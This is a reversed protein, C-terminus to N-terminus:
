RGVRTLRISKARAELNPGGLLTPTQDRNLERLATTAVRDVVFAYTEQLDVWRDGNADADGRLARLLFYTFLGHQFPEYDSSIQNATAATLVAINGFTLVPDAATIVIPRGKTAISRGGLGSFCSDLFVVTNAGLADLKEYLRKLAYMRTQPSDPHGEYPVLYSEGAAPDLAGHGAYYVFVDSKATVRRPLWQEFTEEFDSRAARDNLLIRMNQRPVGVANELYQAVTQADREAFPLRPIGSERYNSIGIIVAVSSAREPISVAAPPSDVDAAPAPAPPSSPPSPQSGPQPQNPPAYNSPDRWYRAKEFEANARKIDGKKQYYQALREHARASTPDNLDEFIQHEEFTTPRPPLGSTDFRGADAPPSPKQTRAYAWIHSSAGNLLTVMAISIFIGCRLKKM